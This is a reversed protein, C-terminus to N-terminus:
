RITRIHGLAAPYLDAPYNLVYDTPTGSITVRITLPGYFNLAHNLLFTRKSNDGFYEESAVSADFRRTM